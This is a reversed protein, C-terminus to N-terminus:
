GPDREKLGSCREADDVAAAAGADGHEVVSAHGVPRTGARIGVYNSVRVSGRRETCIIRLTDAGDQAIGSCEASGHAQSESVCAAIEHAIGVTQVKINSEQLVEFDGLAAVELKARFGEVNEIVGLEANVIRVLAIRAAVGDGAVASQIIGGAVGTAELAAGEQMGDIRM